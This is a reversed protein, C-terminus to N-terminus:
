VESLKAGSHSKLFKATEEWVNIKDCDAMLAHASHEYSILQKDESNIWDYVYQGNEYPVAIDAKSHMILTPSTVQGLKMRVRWTLKVVEAVAKMPYVSYGYFIKPKNKENKYFQKKEEYEKFPAVFPTLYVTWKKHKIIPAYLVIGPIDREIALNLTLAGGMSFGIVFVEEKEASLRDYGERVSDIWDQYVKSNCDDPSTGHGPLIDAVATIGQSALYKGLEQMEYPSGTFGHIIYCASPGDAEYRFGERSIKREPDIM